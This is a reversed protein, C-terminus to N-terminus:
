DNARYLYNLLLGARRQVHPAVLHHPEIDDYQMAIFAPRTGSFQTAAKKLAELQPASHDDEQKSRAVVMCAGGPLFPGAVHCSDGYANRCASYFAEQGQVAAATIAPTIRDRKISFFEAELETLSTDPIFAAVAKRLVDQRADDGPLRGEFTVVVLESAGSSARDILPQGIADIFRYFDKRHIRRGADASLSKCEVEGHVRDNWFRLDFRDHGDMDSFEIECGVGLLLRAIELELFLPSFGTEAKLCDRLRGRLVAQGRESLRPHAEVTMHAFHLAALADVNVPRAADAPNAALLAQDNLELELWHYQGVIMAKYPSAAADEHLQRVRRSWRESGALAVFDRAATRLSALDDKLDIRM